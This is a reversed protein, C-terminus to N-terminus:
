LLVENLQKLDRIVNNYVTAAYMEAGRVQELGETERRHDRILPIRRELGVITPILPRAAQGV